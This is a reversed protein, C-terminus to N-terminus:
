TKWHKRNLFIPIFKLSIQFYIFKKSVAWIEKINSYMVTNINIKTKKTFIEKLIDFFKFNMLPLWDM